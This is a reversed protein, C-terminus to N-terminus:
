PITDTSSKKTKSKEISQLIEMPALLKFTAIRFSRGSLCYLYFNLVFNAYFVLQFSHWLINEKEIGIAAKINDSERLLILTPATTILFTFSIFIFMVTTSLFNDGESTNNTLSSRQKSFRNYQIIILINGVFILAFPLFSGIVEDIIKKSDLYKQSKAYCTVTGQFSGKTIGVLLFANLCFSFLFVVGVAIREAKKTMWLKAKLPYLLSLARMWTILVILWASSQLFWYLLFVNIKCMASSSTRIDKGSISIALQRLGGILLALLDSAALSTMAISTPVERFFRSRWVYMSLSNGVLGFFILFSFGMMYVVNLKWTLSSYDIAPCSSSSNDSM